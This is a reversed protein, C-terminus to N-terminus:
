KQLPDSEPNAQHIQTAAAEEIMLMQKHINEITLAYVVLQEPPLARMQEPADNAQLKDALADRLHCWMAEYNITAQDNPM